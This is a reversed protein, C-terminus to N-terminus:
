DLAGRNVREADPDIRPANEHGPRPERAKNDPALKTDPHAPRELRDKSPKPSTPPPKVEPKVAPRHEAPSSIPHDLELEAAQAPWALWLGPWCILLLTQYRQRM